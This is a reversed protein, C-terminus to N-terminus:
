KGEIVHHPKEVKIIVAFIFITPILDWTCISNLPLYRMLTLYVCNEANTKECECECRWKDDVLHHLIIFTFLILGFFFLIVELRQQFCCIKNQWTRRWEDTSSSIKKSISNNVFISWKKVDCIAKLFPIERLQTRAQLQSFFLKKLDNRSTKLLM